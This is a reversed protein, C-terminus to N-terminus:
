DIREYRYDSPNHRRDRQVQARHERTRQFYPGGSSACGSSMARLGAFLGVMLTMISFRKM